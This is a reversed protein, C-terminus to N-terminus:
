ASLSLKSYGANTRPWDSSFLSNVDQFERQEARGTGESFEPIAHILGKPAERARRVDRWPVPCKNTGRAMHPTDPEGRCRACRESLGLVPNVHGEETSCVARSLAWLESTLKVKSEGASAPVLQCLARTGAAAPNPSCLAAAARTGLSPFPFNM